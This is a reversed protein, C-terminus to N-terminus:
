SSGSIREQENVGIQGNPASAPCGRTVLADHWSAAFGTQEETLLHGTRTTFDQWAEQVPMQSYASEQSAVTKITHDIQQQSWGAKRAKAEFDRAMKQGLRDDSRVGLRHYSM